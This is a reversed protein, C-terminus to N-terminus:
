LGRATLALSTLSILELYRVEKEQDKKDEETEDWMNCRADMNQIIKAAHKVDTKAIFRHAVQGNIPRVRQKLERNVIAGM